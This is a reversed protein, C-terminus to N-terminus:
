ESVEDLGEPPPGSGNVRNSINVDINTAAPQTEIKAINAITILELGNEFL